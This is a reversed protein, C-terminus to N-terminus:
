RSATAASGRSFLDDLDALVKDPGLYTKGSFTDFIVNGGPDLVVLCPIGDGEYKKL